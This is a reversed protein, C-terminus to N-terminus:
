LRAQGLATGVNGWLRPFPRPGLDVAKKAQQGKM